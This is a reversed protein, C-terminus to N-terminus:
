KSTCRSNSITFLHKLNDYSSRAHGQSAAQRCYYLAMHENRKVGEGNLFSWALNFQASSCQLSAALRYFRIAERQNREVQIGFKYCEALTSLALSYNKAAARHLYQMALAPNAQISETNHLYIIGLNYLAAHNYSRSARHTSHLTHPLTPAFTLATGVPHGRKASELFLDVARTLNREVGKGFHFCQALAVPHGFRAALIVYRWCQEDNKMLGTGLRMREGLVLFSEPEYSAFALEIQDNSFSHYENHELSEEPVVMEIEAPDFFSPPLNNLVLSLDFNNRRRHQAASQRSCPRKASSQEISAVRKRSELQKTLLEYKEGFCLWSILNLLARLM